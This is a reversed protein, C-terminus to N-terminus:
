ILRSDSNKFDIPFFPHQLTLIERFNNEIVCMQTRLTYPKTSLRTAPIILFGSKEIPPMHNAGCWASRSKSIEKIADVSTTSDHVSLKMM